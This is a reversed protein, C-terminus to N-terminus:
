CARCEAQIMAKPKGYAEKSQKRLLVVLVFLFPGCPKKPANQRRDGVVLREIEKSYKVEM